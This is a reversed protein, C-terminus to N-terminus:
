FAAETGTHNEIEHEFLYQTKGEGFDVLLLIRGLNEITRVLTGERPLVMGDKNSRIPKNIKLKDGPKM